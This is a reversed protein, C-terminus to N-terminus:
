NFIFSYKAFNLCRCRNIAHKIRKRKIEYGNMIGVSWHPNMLTGMGMGMPIGVPIGMGVVARAHVNRM